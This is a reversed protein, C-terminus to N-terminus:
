RNLLPFFTPIMDIIQSRVHFRFNFVMDCTSNKITARRDTSREWVFHGGFSDGYIDIADAKRKKYDGKKYNRFIAYAQVAGGYSPVDFALPSWGFGDDKRYCNTQVFGEGGRSMPTMRFSAILARLQAKPDGKFKRVLATNFKKYDFGTSFKTENMPTSDYTGCPWGASSGTRGYTATKSKSYPGYASLGAGATFFYGVADLTEGSYGPTLPVGNPLSVNPAALFFGAPFGPREDM